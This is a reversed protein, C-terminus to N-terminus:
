RLISHIGQRLDSLSISLAFKQGVKIIANSNRPNTVTTLHFSQLSAAKTSPLSEPDVPITGTNDYLIVDDGHFAVIAQLVRAHLKAINV